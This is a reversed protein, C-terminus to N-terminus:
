AGRAVNNGERLKGLPPLRVDENVVLGTTLSRFPGVDRLPEHGGEAMDWDRINVDLRYLARYGHPGRLHCRLGRPVDEGCHADYPLRRSGPAVDRMIGEFPQHQWASPESSFSRERRLLGAGDDTKGFLRVTREEPNNGLCSDAATFHAPQERLVHVGGLLEDM